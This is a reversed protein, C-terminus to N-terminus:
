QKKVVPPKNNDPQKKIKKLQIFINDVNSGKWYKLSLDQDIKVTSLLCIKM